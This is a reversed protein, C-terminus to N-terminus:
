LVGLPEGRGPAPLDDAEGDIGSRDPRGTVIEFGEGVGDTLGGARRLACGAPVHAAPGVGDLDSPAAM